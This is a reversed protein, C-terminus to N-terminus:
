ALMLYYCLEMDFIQSDCFEAGISRGRVNRVVVTRSVETKKDDDLIFKVGLIEDINIDEEKQTKFKLGSFSLDKVIMIGKKNLDTRTYSGHLNTNKRYYKRLEINIGSINFIYGCGCKAKVPSKVDRYQTVDVIKANSCNPCTITAKNGSNAFVQLTAVKLAMIGGRAELTREGGSRTLL